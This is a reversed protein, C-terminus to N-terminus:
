LRALLGDKSEYPLNASAVKALYAEAFSTAEEGPWKQPELNRFDWVATLFLNPADYTGRQFTVGSAGEGWM